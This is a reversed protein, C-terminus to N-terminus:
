ADYTQVIGDDDKLQIGITRGFDNELEKFDLLHNKMKQKIKFDRMLQYAGLFTSHKSLLEKTLKSTKWLGCCPHNKYNHMMLSSDANFIITSEGIFNIVNKWTTTEFVKVKKPFVVFEDHPSFQVPGSEEVSLRAVIKQERKDWFTHLSKNQSYTYFVFYKESESELGEVMGDLRALEDIKKFSHADYLIINYNEPIPIPESNERRRKMIIFNGDKSFSYKLPIGVLEAIVKGNRISRIKTTINGFAEHVIFRDHVNDICWLLMNEFREILRDNELDILDLKNVYPYFFYRETKDFQVNEVVIRDHLNMKLSGDAANYM